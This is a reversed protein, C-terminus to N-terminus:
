RVRRRWVHQTDFMICVCVQHEKLEPELMEKIEKMWGRADKMQLEQELLEQEVQSRRWVNSLDVSITLSGECSRGLCECSRGLGECSRGLGGCVKPVRVLRQLALM